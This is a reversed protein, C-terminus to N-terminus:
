AQIKPNKIIAKLHAKNVIGLKSLTKLVQRREIRFQLELELMQQETIGEFLDELIEELVEGKALLTAAKQLEAKERM